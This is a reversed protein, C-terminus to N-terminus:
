KGGSFLPRAGSKQAQLVVIIDTRSGEDSSGTFGPLFTFGSRSKTSKTSALGGLVLVEGSRVDVRTKIERKTLTPSTNVGTTTQVFDSLQQTIDLTIVEDLVVPTVSLIAGSSRYTVSQVATGSTG